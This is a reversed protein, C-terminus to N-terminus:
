VAYPVSAKLPVCQAPRKSRSAKLPIGQKPRKSSLRRVSFQLHGLPKSARVLSLVATTYYSRSLAAADDQGRPVPGQQHPAARIRYHRPMRCNQGPAAFELSKPAPFHGETIKQFGTANRRRSLPQLGYVTIATPDESVEYICRDQPQGDGCVRSIQFCDLAVHVSIGSQLRRTRKNVDRPLTPTPAFRRVAGPPMGSLFM